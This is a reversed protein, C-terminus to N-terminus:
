RCCVTYVDTYRALQDRIEINESPHPGVGGEGPQLWRRRLKWRRGNSWLNWLELELEPGRSADWVHLLVRSQLQVFMNGSRINRFMWDGFCHRKYSKHMVHMALVCSEVNDYVIDIRVYERYMGRYMNLVIICRCFLVNRRCVNFVTNGDNRTEWGDRLVNWGPLLRM